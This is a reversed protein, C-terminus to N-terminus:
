TNVVCNFVTCWSAGDAPRTQTRAAPRANRTAYHAAARPILIQDCRCELVLGAAWAVLLVEFVTM